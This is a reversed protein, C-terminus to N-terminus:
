TIRYLFPQDQTLLIFDNSIETTRLRGYTIQGPRNNQRVWTMAAIFADRGWLGWPRYRIKTPWHGPPSRPVRYERWSVLVMQVIEEPLYLLLERMEIQFIDPITRLFLIIIFFFLILQALLYPVQSPTGYRVTIVVTHLLSAITYNYLCSPITSM